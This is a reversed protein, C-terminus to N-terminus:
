SSWCYVDQDSGRERSALAVLEELIQSAVAPDIKWGDDAKKAVWWQALEDIRPREASVLASLLSRSLRFVAAGGDDEVVTEPLDEDILETFTRGTLHAEWDLLAEEADFNGFSAMPFSADPGTHLADAAGSGAAVFFKVISSVVKGM